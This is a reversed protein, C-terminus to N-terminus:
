KNGFVKDRMMKAGIVRERIAIKKGTATLGFDDFSNSWEVLEENSPASIAPSKSQIVELARNYGFKFDENISEDMSFKIDEIWELDVVHVQKKEMNTLIIRTTQNIINLRDKYRFQRENKPLSNHHQIYAM